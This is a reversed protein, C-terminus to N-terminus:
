VSRGISLLPVSDPVRTSTIETAHARPISERQGSSPKNRYRRVGESRPAVAVTSPGPAAPGNQKRAVHQRRKTTDEASGWSWLIQPTPQCQRGPSRSVPVHAPLARPRSQRAHANTSSRTPAGNLACETSGAFFLKRPLLKRSVLM